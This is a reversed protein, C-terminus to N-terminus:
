SMDIEYHIDSIKYIFSHKDTQIKIKKDYKLFSSSYPQLIKLVQSYKGVGSPGYVILNDFSSNNNNHIKNIIPTLEPHINYQNVANLYEEYHTEYLKM